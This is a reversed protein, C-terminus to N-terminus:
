LNVLGGAAGTRATRQHASLNLSVKRPLDRLLCKFLVVVIRWLENGILEVEAFQAVIRWPEIAQTFTNDAL